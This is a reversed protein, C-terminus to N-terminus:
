NAGSGASSDGRVYQAPDSDVTAGAALWRAFGAPDRRELEDLAERRWQVLQARSEADGGSELAAASRLWERGLAGTSLGALGPATGPPRGPVDVPPHLPGPPPMGATRASPHRNRRDAPDVARVPPAAPPVPPVWPRRGAAGGTATRGAGAGRPHGPRRLWWALVVAGAWAVVVGPAAAGALVVAGSCGLLVAVTGAAARCAGEVTARSARGGASRHAVGAGLCAAPVAALAVALLGTGHLALAGLLALGGTLALALAASSGALVSRASV